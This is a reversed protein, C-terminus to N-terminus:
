AACIREMWEEPTPHDPSFALVSRELRRRKRPALTAGEERLLGDLHEALFHEVQSRGLEDPDGGAEWVMLWLAYRSVRRELAVCIEAYLHDFYRRPM